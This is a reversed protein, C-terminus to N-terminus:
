PPKSKANVTCGCLFNSAFPFHIVYVSFRNRAVFRETSRKSDNASRRRHLCSYWGSLDRCFIWCNRRYNGGNQVTFGTVQNVLAQKAEQQSADIAERFTRKQRELNSKASSAEM